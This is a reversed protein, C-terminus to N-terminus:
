LRCRLLWRWRHQLRFVFDWHSSRCRISSLWRAPLSWFSPLFTLGGESDFHWFRRWPSLPLAFPPPQSGSILTYTWIGTITMFQWALRHRGFVGAGVTAFIGAILALNSGSVATLHTTGTRVFAGKREPSFGEDDGTVLGSLLVGADGPAAVRLVRSLRSRLEALSRGGGKTSGVISHSNLYMSGACQKTALYAQQSVTADSAFKVAGRFEISDGLQVEPVAEGTVCIRAPSGPAISEDAGTLEIVFHQNRGTNSPASVVMATESSRIVGTENGNRESTAGRWAGAMTTALVVALVAVFSRKRVVIAAIVSIAAIAVVGWWGLAVGILIGGSVAMGTM